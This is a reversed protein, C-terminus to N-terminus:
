YDRILMGRHIRERAKYVGGTVGHSNTKGSAPSSVALLCGVVTLDAVPTFDYCPLRLPVQPQIVEKRPFARRVARGSSLRRARAPAERAPCVAGGCAGATRADRGRFGSALRAGLPAFPPAQLEPQNSRVGSLRSTPLELRGLGVLRGGGSFPAYSLRSLAQKALLLDDTRDREGGGPRPNAGALPFPRGTRSSRSRRRGTRAARSNSMTFLDPTSGRAGSGQAFPTPSHPEVPQSRPTQARASTQAHLGRSLRSFPMRPIGQCQSAIFSTARQSLDRPAALLSQAPFKRIPCGVADATDRPSISYGRSAFGTFQFMETVPPFSM